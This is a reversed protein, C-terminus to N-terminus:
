KPLPAGGGTPRSPAVRVRSPKTRSHEVFVKASVVHQPRRRFLEVLEDAMGLTTALKAFGAFGIAGTREFRRLTAIPVGSKTALDVQRWRTAIRRDRIAAAAAELVDRETTLSLM